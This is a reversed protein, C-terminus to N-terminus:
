NLPAYQPPPWTAISVSTQGMNSVGNGTLDLSASVAMDAVGTM